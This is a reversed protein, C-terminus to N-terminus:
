AGRRAAQAGKAAVKAELRAVRSARGVDKATERAARRTRWRLSPRGGTDVAAVLLGGLISLNKIFHHIENTKAQPDSEEWFRHGALTTPVLSGALALAALRPFRGTALLLGAGLQVAANLRVLDM